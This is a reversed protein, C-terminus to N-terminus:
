FFLHVGFHFACCLHVNLTSAQSLNLVAITWETTFSRGIQVTFELSVWKSNLHYCKFYNFDYVIYQFQFFMGSLKTQVRKFFSKTESANFFYAIRNFFKLAIVLVYIRNLKIQLSLASTILKDEVLIQSPNIKPRAYIQKCEKSSSSNLYSKYFWEKSINWRSWTSFNAQSLKLKM